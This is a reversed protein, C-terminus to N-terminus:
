ARPPPLLITRFWESRGSDLPLAAVRAAVDIPLTAAHANAVGVSTGCSGIGGIALPCSTDAEGNMSGGFPCDMHGAVGAEAAVSMDMGMDMGPPCRSVEYGVALSLLLAALQPLAMLSRTPAPLRMHCALM